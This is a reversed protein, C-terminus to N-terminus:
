NVLIKQFLIKKDLIIFCKPSSFRAHLSSSFYNTYKECVITYVAEIVSAADCRITTAKKSTRNISQYNQLNAPHLYRSGGCPLGRGFRPMRSDAMGRRREIVANASFFNEECASAIICIIYSVASLAGVKM